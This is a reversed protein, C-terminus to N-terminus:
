PLDPQPVAMPELKVIFQKLEKPSRIHILHKGHRHAEIIEILRKRERRHIQWMGKVLASTELWLRQREGLTLGPLIISPCQRNIVWWYHVPLPHDIFIITDAAAFRLEISAWSGWGDIIWADRSILENHKQTFEEVPVAVGGPKWQLPDLQYVNLALHKGLKSCMTTKGGGANGIVAIRGAAPSKALLADVSNRM